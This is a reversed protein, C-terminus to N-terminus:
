FLLKVQDATEIFRCLLRIGAELDQKHLMENPSHVFRTPISLTAVPGKGFLQMGIADTGGFPLIEMQYKIKAKRALTKLHEVMGHNSISGQDNIKIAVGQGLKSVTEQEPVGPTDFAATVDLAIGLDPNYEKSATKIGRCGVEEQTTGLAIVNVNLNKRALRRMSELVMYCGVRNDFAKSIYVGGQEKFDADFVIPDGIEVQKSIEKFSLGTAIFMQKFEPVKGKSEPDLFSPAGEVVGILEKHRGIIKVRSSILVRPVHGGRPSFYIFGNKDLHSVVFGIEDMHGAIMLTKANKKKSAKIGTVNGMSDVFTEDCSRALHEKMIDIIKQERGPIGCELCLKKLLETM